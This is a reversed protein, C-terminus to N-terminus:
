VNTLTRVSFFSAGIPLDSFASGEPLIELFSGCIRSACLKRTVSSPASITIIRKEGIANERAPLAKATAITNTIKTAGTASPTGVISMKMGGATIPIGAISARKAWITAHTTPKRVEIAMTSSLRMCGTIPKQLEINASKM